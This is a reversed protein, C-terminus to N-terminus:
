NLELDPVYSETIATIPVITLTDLRMLEEFSPREQPDIQWCSLMVEYLPDPIDILQPLRIGQVIAEEVESDMSLNSYPTGGMSLMEWLLVGFAWVVGPQQKKQTNSFCEIATWRAYKIDELGYKAIGHGMVKPIFDSTLGISRACLHNHVIKHNALHQMAAAISSAINLINDVPFIEGSRAALLRNKLTQPPLELAVYLMDSTECTGILGAIYKIPPVKICIDLERLMHRKESPKLQGDAITHIAASYVKNDREVTGTHVTGFRGRRIVDENISLANRPISWVKNKLEQYHNIREPVDEPIYGMNDVEYLPGQLTLEQQEPLKGMRLKEHRRRLYVYILISAVLLIGLLVIAIWLVIATASMATTKVANYPMRNTLDSYSYQVEGNAKSVVALGIHPFISGTKLPVNYYEGIMKGDGVVFKEYNNFDSSDFEGTIYYGLGLETAKEYNTYSTKSDTPPITGPQVVIVQYASIPGAESNGKTLKVTVTNETQCIIKPMEPKMPPGVGTWETASVSESIGQLNSAILSINYKTGPQLGKLVTRNSTGGQIQSEVPPLINIAYTKLVVARLTYSTINGNPIDPPQWTILFSDMGDATIQIRRPPSPGKQGTSYISMATAAGCFNTLDATCPITCDKSFGTKGYKSGCYCQHSNMLGAFMFYRSQCEKICEAPTNANILTSVPLAPDYSSSDFCGEYDQGYVLFSMCLILGPLLMNFM